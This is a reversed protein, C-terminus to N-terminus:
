VLFADDYQWCSHNKREFEMISGVREDTNAIYLSNDDPTFSVGAIEGFFDVVQSLDFTKADYIHVFDLPEAAALFRGDNSFHLSRIAGLNARLVHLTESMNRIDYIRTTKDQNGTALYRDDPSWCCAFSYDIHGHLVKIVEGSQADALISDTSDGVACLIRKDGSIASCNVAWPFEFTRTLKLTNLDMLRARNDNSSILGQFVGNRDHILDIHNTIGSADSTINGWHEDSESANLRKFIYEGSNGGVMLVDDKCAITSAKIDNRDRSLHLVDHSTRLQPSWLRVHDKYTYFVENKNPAWLLNRLQFHVISCKESLKTYRFNYFDGDPRVPKVEKLIGDHSARLNEYNRKRYRDLRQKRYDDRRMRLQDWEIGQMDVGNEVNNRTVEDNTFESTTQMRQERPEYVEFTEAPSVEYNWTMSPYDIEGSVHHHYIDHRGPAFDHAEM